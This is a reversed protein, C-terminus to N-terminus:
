AYPSDAKRSSTCPTPPIVRTASLVTLYTGTRSFIENWTMSRTALLSWHETALFQAHPGNGSAELGDLSPPTRMPPQQRM